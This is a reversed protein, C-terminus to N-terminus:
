EDAADSTYLLCSDFLTKKQQSRNDDDDNLLTLESALLFEREYVSAPIEALLWRNAVILDIATLAVLCWAAIERPARVSRNNTSASSEFNSISSGTQM